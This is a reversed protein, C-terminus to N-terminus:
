DTDLDKSKEKGCGLELAVICDSALIKCDIHISKYVSNINREMNITHPM